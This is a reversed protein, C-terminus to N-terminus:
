DKICRVSLGYARNVTSSSTTNHDTATFMLSLNAWGPLYSYDKIDSSWYYSNGSSTM